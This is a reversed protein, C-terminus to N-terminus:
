MTLMGKIVKGAAVAKFAEDYESLNWQHTLLKDVPILRRKILEAV